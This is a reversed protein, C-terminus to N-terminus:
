KLAKIEDNVRSTIKRIGAETYNYKRGLFIANQMDVFFDYCIKYKHSDKDVVKLISNNFEDVPMGKYLPKLDKVLKSTLYSLGVGLMIPVIISIGIPTTIRNLIYYSINSLIFCQIMSKLHFSKKFIRKSIWFSTLIFICEVITDNLIGILIVTVVTFLNWFLSLVFYIIFAAKDQKSLSSYNKQLDRLLSSFNKKTQLSSHQAVQYGDEWQASGGKRFNMKYVIFLMILYDLNLIINTIPNTVYEVSNDTRTIISVIETGIMLGVIIFFRKLLEKNFKRKYLFSVTFYYVLEAIFSFGGFLDIKYCELFYYPILFILNHKIMKKSNDNNSFSVIIYQNFILPIFFFLNNLLKHKSIVSSIKTIIPNNIDLGFYDLGVLKMIFIIVLLILYVQLSASLYKRYDKFM